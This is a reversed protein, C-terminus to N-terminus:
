VLRLLLLLSADHGKLVEEREGLAPVVEFDRLRVDLANPPLEELSAMMYMHQLTSYCLTGYCNYCIIVYCLMDYYLVVAHIYCVIVVHLVIYCLIVYCLMSYCVIVYYVM